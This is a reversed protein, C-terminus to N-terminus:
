KRLRSAPRSARNSVDAVTEPKNLNGGNVLWAREFMRRFDVLGIKSQDQGPTDGFWVVADEVKKGVRSRLNNGPDVEFQRLGMVRANDMFVTFKGHVGDVHLHLESLDRGPVLDCGIMLYTKKRGSATELVLANQLIPLEAVNRASIGPNEHLLKSIPVRTM